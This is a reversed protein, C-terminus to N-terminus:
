VKEKVETGLLGSPKFLLILILISFVVAEAVTTNTYGNTMSELIGLLLGGLMAGPIDGIGGLVAAIFAKLGLMSGMTPRINPYKNIYLISAVCALASGVAFSFAIVRNTNIGMLEAAEMDESTARMSKGISTKKVLFQLLVMMIGAVIITLFIGSDIILGGIHLTPLNIFNPITKSDSGFILEFLHQLFISVGIATILLTIRPANGKLMKEYAIKHVLLGVIACSLVSAIMSIGLPLNFMVLSTFMAYSGIMIIDGHAFNILKVIGYVMSYGLAVLAYISGLSIGNLLQALFYDM